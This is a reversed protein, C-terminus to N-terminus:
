DACFFAIFVDFPQEIVAQRIFIFGDGDQGDAIVAFRRDARRWSEVGVKGGGACLKIEVARWVIGVIDGM